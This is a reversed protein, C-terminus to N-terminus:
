RGFFRAKLAAYEPSGDMSNGLRQHLASVEKHYDAQTLRAQPQAAVGSAQAAPNAPAITTGKATSYATVLMQAAARAQFGGADFMANIAAKEAPDAEKGAWEVITKWQAEGGAIAHVAKNTAAQEDNFKTLQRGHADKALQVHKEWGKAEDGLTSLKAEIFTFDGNAAAVMAPDTGEIGLRGIFALALDLGADGTEDYVVLGAEDKESPVAEVKPQENPKPAEAPPTEAVPPTVPEQVVPPTASGNVPAPAGQAPVISGLSIATNGEQSPNQENVEGPM